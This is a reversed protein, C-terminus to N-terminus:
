AHITRLELVECKEVILRIEVERRVVSFPTLKCSEIGMAARDLGRTLVPRTSDGVFNHEAFGGGNM